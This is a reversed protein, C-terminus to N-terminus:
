LPSSMGCTGASRLRSPFRCAIGVIATPEDAQTHNSGGGARRMYFASSPRTPVVTAGEALYRALAWHGTGLPHIIPYWWVLTSQKVDM